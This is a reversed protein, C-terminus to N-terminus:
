LHPIRTIVGPSNGHDNVDEGGVEMRLAGSFVYYYEAADDHAHRVRGLADGSLSDAGLEWTLPGGRAAETFFLGDDGWTTTGWEEM